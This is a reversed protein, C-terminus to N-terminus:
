RFAPLLQGRWPAFIVRPSLRLADAGICDRMHRMSPAFPRHCYFLFHGYDPQVVVNDDARRYLPLPFGSKAYPL